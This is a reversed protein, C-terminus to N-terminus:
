RLNSHKAVFERLADMAARGITHGGKFSVTKPAYGLTMLAAAAAATRQAPIVRDRTGVTLMVPVAAQEKTPKANGETSPLSASLAAVAKFRGPRRALAQLALMGGQSFGYVVPKGAKPYTVKLQVLLADLRDVAQALAAAKDQASMNWWQRANFRGWPVPGRAVISRVRLGLTEAVSSFNDTKDGRGHLAIVLPTDPKADAPEVVAYEIPGKLSGSHRM